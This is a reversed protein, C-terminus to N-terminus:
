SVRRSLSNGEWDVETSEIRVSGKERFKPLLEGFNLGEEREVLRWTELGVELTRKYGSERLQDVLQCLPDDATNCFSVFDSYPLIENLLQMSLTIKQLDMSTISTLLIEALQTPYVVCLELELLGQRHSLTPPNM